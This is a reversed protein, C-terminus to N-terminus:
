FSAVRQLTWFAALSGAAYTGIRETSLSPVSGRGLRVVLAAAALLAGVFLIQGVEVGLNFFLLAAPIETQPLGIEGLVAAFGFGHLLGFSMSVAVPYRYTLTNRAPRIIERAVFVISLAISAEVPAIPVRVLELAALALTISHAVTFGTITILIKRGTRAIGLLCVLFLLHDYGFLIHEVGLRGYEGAVGSPTEEEPIVWGTETPTLLTTHVQGSLGEFRVLASLSPNFLPYTLRIEAGALGQPCRQLQRRVHAGPDPLRVPASVPTCSRPLRLEPVNFAPVSLPAQWRLEIQGAPRERLEVYVPRSEHARTGGPLLLALALAALCAGRM